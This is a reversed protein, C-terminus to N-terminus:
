FPGSMLGHAGRGDGDNRRFDRGARGRLRLLYAVVQLRIHHNAENLVGSIILVEVMLVGDLVIQVSGLKHM